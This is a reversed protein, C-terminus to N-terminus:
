KSAVTGMVSTWRAIEREVLKQLAKPTRADEGPIIAGLDLLRNRTNDDDLAKALAENLADTIESSTAAPAFVANWASVNFEGVGLERTTAVNPLAPSRQDTAIAFAKISGAEIKPAVNVIQDAMLDIKGAVLDNLAPGTGGYSVMTPTLELVSNLLSGATHSVSGLGAHAMKVKAGHQRAYSVAAHLDDAPFSRAAVIVIPTGTVLGVPAFDRIPHYKLGPYLAPAAGHTGMHGMIVTHGDPLAEAVRAVAKQGADGILNEVIVPQGLTRSMHTSVIRAVVDTPGGAAFPVIMTIPRQPYPAQGLTSASGLMLAAALLFAIKKM